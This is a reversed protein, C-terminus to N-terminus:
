NKPVLITLSQPITQIEIEDGQLQIPDGDIHAITSVNNLLYSAERYTNVYRSHQIDGFFGLFFLRLMPLLPPRQIMVMDLKGDTPDASKSIRFNNGFQSVNMFSCLYLEKGTLNNMNKVVVNMKQFKRLQHLVLKVYNWFGRKGKKDFQHAIHADYGLGCFGMFHNGNITGTDITLPQATNLALIAKKFQRPIKFHRSIGNGSGGPIIGLQLHTHVLPRSVENISGDGGIIVIIDTHDHLSAKAIEAAHGRHTTEIFKYHFKSHDLYQDILAPIAGKNRVGSIPNCIFKINKM